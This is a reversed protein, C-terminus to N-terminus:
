KTRQIKLKICSKSGKESPKRFKQNLTVKQAKKM